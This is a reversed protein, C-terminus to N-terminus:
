TRPVPPGQAEGIEYTRIGEGGAVSRVISASSLDYGERGEGGGEM